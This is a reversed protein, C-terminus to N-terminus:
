GIKWSEYWLIFTIITWIKRSYNARGLAHQDLYRLAVKQDILHECSPSCLIHKAEDYLENKLWKKLPVPYGKKPAQYIHPPILDKFAERLLVKTQKKNIKERTTLQKAVTLVHPDLFPVRLELAHAMFLRDSKVLIDGRLWTNFDIVQMQSVLDLHQNAEFIPATLRTFPTKADYFNLLEKKERENYVFANGVYRDKLPTCGREIFHKGKVGEPICKSFSFLAHKLTVPFHEFLSLSKPEHYIRYGGFLEDAGEGSLIVKVHERAKQVILYIAVVSPDVVPRDLYDIVARTAHIFDTSNIYYPYLTLNLFDATKLAAEIESYGNEHFGITFTKLNPQFKAACATIITSDVGGSLFSGVEVDSMLHCKVSDEITERLYKPYTSSIEHHPILQVTAYRQLSLGQNLNFILLMGPELIHVDNLCTLPEPIYQFTFFDQIATFNIAAESSIFSKFPKLESTLFLHGDEYYYYLPKIGFRDRIAILEGTSQDYLILSFMGRLQTVFELGILQYLCFIVEVECNTVFDFGLRELQSKLEKYNYIEGNFILHTRGDPSHFPQQRKELDNISLRNFGLAVHKSYFLDQDDPGRHSLRQLSQYMFLLDELTLPQQKMLAVIGCM